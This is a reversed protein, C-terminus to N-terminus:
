KIYSSEKNRRIGKEEGTTTSETDNIKIAAKEITKDCFSVTQDMVVLSFNKLNSYWNDIFDQDINGTTLQLTM